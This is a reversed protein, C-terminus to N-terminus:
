GKARKKRRPKPQMLASLFEAASLPDRLAKVLRRDARRIYPTDDSPRSARGVSGWGMSRCREAWAEERRTRSRRLDIQRERELIETPGVVSLLARQCVRLFRILRFARTSHTTPDRIARVCEQMVHIMKLGVAHRVFAELETGTLRLANTVADAFEHPVAIRLETDLRNALLDLSPDDAEPMPESRQYDDVSRGATPAEVNGM